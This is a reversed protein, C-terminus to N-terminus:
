ITSTDLKRLGELGLQQAIEKLSTGNPLTLTSAIDMLPYVVFNRECLYAHPITLRPTHIEEQGYLLIDLDLTRPGWHIKRERGHELEIAQLADLLAEPSLTTTLKAAGNIYDPQEPGVAVSQYWPSIAEVAIGECNELARCASTLQQMPTALNSGMGIYVVTM